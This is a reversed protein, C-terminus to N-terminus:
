YMEDLMAATIVGARFSPTSASAIAAMSWAHKACLVTL